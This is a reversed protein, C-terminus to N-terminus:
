IERSFNGCWAFGDSARWIKKMKESTATSWIVLISYDEPKLEFHGYRPNDFSSFVNKWNHFLLNEVLYAPDYIPDDVDPIETINEIIVVPKPAKPYKSLGYLSGIADDKKFTKVDWRIVPRGQQKKLFESLASYSPSLLEQVKESFAVVDDTEICQVGFGLYTAILEEEQQQRQLRLTYDNISEPSAHNDFISM